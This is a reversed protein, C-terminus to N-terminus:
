AGAQYQGAGYQNLLAGQQAPSVSGVAMSRAANRIVADRPLASDGNYSGAGFQTGLKGAEVTSLPATSGSHQSQASHLIVNERDPGFADFAYAHSAVGSLGIVLALAAGRLLHSSQKSM